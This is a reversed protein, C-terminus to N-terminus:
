VRARRRQVSLSIPASRVAQGLRTEFFSRLLWIGGLLAIGYQLAMRWTGQLDLFLWMLILVIIVGGLGGRGLAPGNAPPFYKLAKTECM